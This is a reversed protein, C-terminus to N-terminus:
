VDCIMVCVGESYMGGVSAVLTRSPGNGDICDEWWTTEGMRRVSWEVGRGVDHIDEDSRHRSDAPKAHVDIPVEKKRNDVSRYVTTM